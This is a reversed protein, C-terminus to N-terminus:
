DLLDAAAADDTTMLHGYRDVTTKISSHGLRRSVLHMPVGSRLLASAHSHRLDHIRPSSTVCSNNVAPTWAQDRFIWHPIFRDNVTFIFEDSKTGAILPRLRNSNAKSLTVTRRSQKTKTEGLYMSDKTGTGKWARRVQFVLRGDDDTSVDKGQLATAEGFRMGTHALLIMLGKFLEPTHEIIQEIEFKSLFVAEFENGTFVPKPPKVGYAVNMGIHGDRVATNLASSLVAHINKATKHAVQLGNIWGVVDARTLHQARIDGIAPYIHKRAMARNKALTAKEVGDLQELHHEVLQQVTKGAGERKTVYDIVKSLNHGNAELDAIFQEAAEKTDFPHSTQKGSESDRWIAVYRILGSKLKRVRLSAM